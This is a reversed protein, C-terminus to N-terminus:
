EGFGELHKRATSLDAPGGGFRGASRGALTLASRRPRERSVLLRLGRRIIESESLGTRAKLDEVLERDEGTLRAHVYRKM